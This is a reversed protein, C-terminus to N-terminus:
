HRRRRRRCCCRNRGQLPLTSPPPPPSSSPPEYWIGPSELAEPTRPPPATSPPPQSMPLHHSPSEEEEAPLLGVFPKRPYEWAVDRSYSTRGSPRLIKCCDQVHNNDGNLYFCAEVNPESKLARKVHHFGPKLFPLLRSFPVRGHFKRYPSHMDPKGRGRATMNLVHCAYTCAEAWLPGTSPLRTDGFLRPAEPCSAMALDLTMAIHEVVGNHTPSGVPIYKRRIARRDLLEM